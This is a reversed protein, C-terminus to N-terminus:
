FRNPNLKYQFGEAFPSEPEILPFMSGRWYMCSVMFVFLLRTLFRLEVVLNYRDFNKCYQGSCVYKFEDGAREIRYPILKFSDKIFQNTTTMALDTGAANHAAMNTAYEDQYRATRKIAGAYVASGLKTAPAIAVKNVVSKVVSAM